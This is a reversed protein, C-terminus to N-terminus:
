SAMAKPTEPWDRSRCWRYTGVAGPSVAWCGTRPVAITANPLLMRLDGIPVLVCRIERPLQDSM